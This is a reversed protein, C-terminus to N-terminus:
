EEEQELEENFTKHVVTEFELNEETQTLKIEKISGYVNNVSTEPVKVDHIDSKLTKVLERALSPTDLTEVCAEIYCLKNMIQTVRLAKDFDESTTVKSAWVDGDFIRAFKAYNIQTIDNIKENLNRSLMRGTTYGNNNLVVIVPKVGYRLMNGVEIATQQHAGEGTILIVRSHPKALCAGFAAPTAWGSSSWLAQTQYNVSEPLKM